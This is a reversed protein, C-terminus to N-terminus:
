ARFLGNPEQTAVELPEVGALEAITAITEADTRDFHLFSWWTITTYCHNCNAIPRDVPMFLAKSRHCRPCDAYRTESYEAKQYNPLSGFVLDHNLKPYVVHNLWDKLEPSMPSRAM